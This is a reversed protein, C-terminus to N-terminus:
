TWAGREVNSTRRETNITEPQPVGFASCRVGFVLTWHLNM